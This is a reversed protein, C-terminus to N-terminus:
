YGVDEPITYNVETPFLADLWRGRAEPDAEYLFLYRLTHEAVKRCYNRSENYAFEEVLRALPVDPTERMWRAIPRPGGNYAAAALVLQGQFVDALKRMYFFSYNFSVEPRPFTRPDYEIGMDAAVLRATQPIMQLAGVADTHSVAAPNYRSEQRMVAYVFHSPLEYSESLREVLPAWARPYALLWRADTPDPLNTMASIRGGSVKQWGYKHDDVQHGMFHIFLLRKDSPVTREVAGRISVWARRARRVEGLAVLRKVRAYRAVYAGSVQPWAWMADDLPFAEHMAGGGEPWPLKSARPDRGEWQALLQQGLVDYYTLPYLKHLAALERLGMERKGMKDAVVARWYHAKGRVISNGFGLLAGYAHWAQPWKEMRVYCWARFGLSLSRRSEYDKVFSTFMPIAQQCDDHDFPLWARYFQLEEVHEGEPYLEEYLDAVKLAEDYREERMYSRVTLYTAEEKHPGGIKRVYQLMERAEAPDDRLKRLSILAIQWRADYVHKRAAVLARFEERAEAYHWRKMLTRARRHRESWTLSEVKLPLGDRRAAPEDPYTLLLKRTLRDVLASADPDVALWDIKQRLAQASLRRDGKVDKLAVVAEDVKGQRHLIRARELRLTPLEEVTGHEAILTDISALAPADQGSLLHARALWVLRRDEFTEFPTPLKM